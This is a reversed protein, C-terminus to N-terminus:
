FIGVPNGHHPSTTLTLSNPSPKTNKGQTKKCHPTRLPWTNFSEGREQDNATVKGKRDTAGASVLWVKGKITYVKGSPRQSTMVPMSATSIASAAWLLAGLVAPLAGLQAFARAFPRTPPPFASASGALASTFSATLLPVASLTVATTAIKGHSQGQRGQGQCGFNTSEPRPQRAQMDFTNKHVREARALKNSGASINQSPRTSPPSRNCQLATDHTM